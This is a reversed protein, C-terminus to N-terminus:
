FRFIIIILIRFSYTSGTREFPESRNKLRAGQPDPGPDDRPAPASPVRERRADPGGVEAEPKWRRVAPAGSGRCDCRRRRECISPLPAPGPDADGPQRPGVHSLRTAP